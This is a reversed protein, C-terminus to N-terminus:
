NLLERQMHTHKFMKRVAFTIHDTKGAKEYCMELKNIVTYHLKQQQYEMIRGCECLCSYSNPNRNVLSHKAFLVINYLMTLLRVLQVDRATFTEVIIYNRVNNAQIFKILAIYTYNVEPLGNKYLHSHNGNYYM